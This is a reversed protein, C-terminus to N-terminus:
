GLVRKVTEKVKANDFPKVIFDAAGVSVAEKVMQEQGVASVMIVKADPSKEKIEKLVQVGDKKEMIIDLLVLDPKEAEYKQVAEAGDVAEIIEYGDSKLVSSWGKRSASDDDVILISLNPKAEQSIGTPRMVTQGSATELTGKVCGFEDLAMTELVSFGNDSTM